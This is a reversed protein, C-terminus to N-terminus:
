PNAKQFDQILLTTLRSLIEFTGLLPDRGSFAATRGWVQCVAPFDGMSSLVTVPRDVSLSIFGYHLEEDKRKHIVIRVYVLIGKNETLAVQPLSEKFHAAVQSQIIEETVGARRADPTISEVLLHVGSIHRLNLAEYEQANSSSPLLGFAVMLTLFFLKTSFTAKAMDLHRIPQWDQPGGFRFKSEM